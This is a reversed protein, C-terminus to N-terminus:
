SSICIGFWRKFKADVDFVLEKVAVVLGPMVKGETDKPFLPVSYPAPYNTYSFASDLSCSSISQGLTPVLIQNEKSGIRDHMQKQIRATGERLHEGRKRGKKRFISCSVSDLDSNSM